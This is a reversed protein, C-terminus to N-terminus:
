NISWPHESDSRFPQDPVVREEVPAPLGPVAALDPETARPVDELRQRARLMSEAQALTHKDVAHPTVFVVLETENNQFRRSRFLAGLVPIDDVRCILKWTTM